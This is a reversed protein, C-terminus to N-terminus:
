RCDECLHQWEGDALRAVGGGIKFQDLADYFDATSFEIEDGCEDCVIACCRERRNRYFSM